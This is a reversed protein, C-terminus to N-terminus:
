DPANKSRSAPPQANQDLIQSEIELRKLHMMGRLESASIDESFLRHIQDLSFGIDKLAMNNLHSFQHISFYRYGTFRDIWAPTAVFGKPRLSPSNESYVPKSFDGIKLM